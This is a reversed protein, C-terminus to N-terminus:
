RKMVIFMLLVVIMKVFTSTLRPNKVFNRQGEAANEYDINVEKM